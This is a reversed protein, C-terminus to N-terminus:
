AALGLATACYNSYISEASTIDVTYPPHVCNQSIGTSIFASVESSFDPRCFCDNLVPFGCELYNQIDDFGYLVYQACPRLHKYDPAAQISVSSASQAFVKPLATLILFPSMYGVLVGVMKAM